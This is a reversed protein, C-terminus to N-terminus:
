VKDENSEDKLKQEFEKRKREEENVIEMLSQKIYDAYKKQLYIMYEYEINTM